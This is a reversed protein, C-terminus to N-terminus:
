GLQKMVEDPIDYNAHIAQVDDHDELIDMFEMLAKAGELDLSTSM